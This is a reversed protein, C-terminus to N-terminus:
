HTEGEKTNINEIASMPLIGKNSTVASVMHNCYILLWRSITNADRYSNRYTYITEEKPPRLYDKAPKPVSSNLDGPKEYISGFDESM